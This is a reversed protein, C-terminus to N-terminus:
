VVGGHGGCLAGGSSGKKVETMDGFDATNGASAITSYDITNLNNATFWVVLTSNSTCCVQGYFARMDGFDSANGASAITIYDIAVNNGEATGGGSWMGYTSNGSGDVMQAGITADGFDTSNGTSAITIYSITEDNSDLGSRRNGGAWVGRTSSNMGGAHNTVTEDVDGFDTMNGTTDITIYEMTNVGYVGGSQAGGIHVGRTSSSVANAGQTAASLDGFDTVNGESAVTIYEMKNTRAM